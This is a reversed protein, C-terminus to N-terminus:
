DLEELAGNRIRDVLYDSTLDGYAVYWDDVDILSWKSPSASVLRYVNGDRVFRSGPKLSYYEEWDGKIDDTNPNFRKSDNWVIYGATDLTIYEDEIAWKVRRVKKGKLLAQMAENFTM